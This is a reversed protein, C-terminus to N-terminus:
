LTARVSYLMAKLPELVTAKTHTTDLVHKIGQFGHKLLDNDHIYSEVSSVVGRTEFRTLSVNSLSASHLLAYCLPTIHGKCKLLNGFNM